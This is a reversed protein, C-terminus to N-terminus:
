KIYITKKYINRRIHYFSGEEFVIVTNVDVRWANSVYREFLGDLTKICTNTDIQNSFTVCAVNSVLNEDFFNIILVNPKPVSAVFRTASITDIKTVCPQHSIYDFTKGLNTQANLNTVFTTVFITVIIAITIFKKM